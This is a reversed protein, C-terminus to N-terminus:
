GYERYTYFSFPAHYVFLICRTHADSFSLHSSSVSTSPYPCRWESQGFCIGYSGIQSRVRDETTLLGGSSCCPALSHTSKKFSPWYALVQKGCVRILPKPIVAKFSVKRERSGFHRFDRRRFMVGRQREGATSLCGWGRMRLGQGHCSVASVGTPAWQVFCHPELKKWELPLMALSGEMSQCCHLSRLSYGVGWSVTILVFV